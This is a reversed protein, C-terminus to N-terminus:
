SSGPSRFPLASIRTLSAESLFLNLSGQTLITDFAISCNMSMLLNFTESKARFQLASIRTLGAESLSLNLSSQTLITNFAISCNM